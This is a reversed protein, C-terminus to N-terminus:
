WERGPVPFKGLGAAAPSASIHKIIPALDRDRPAIGTKGGVKAVFARKVVIQPRDVVYRAFDIEAETGGM